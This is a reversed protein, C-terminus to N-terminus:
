ASYKFHTASPPTGNGGSECSYCMDFIERSPFTDPLPVSVMAAGLVFEFKVSESGVLV